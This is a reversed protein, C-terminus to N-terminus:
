YKIDSNQNKQREINDKIQLLISKVKESIGGGFLDIQTAFVIKEGFNTKNKLYIHTLYMSWGGTTLKDIENIHIKVKKFDNSIILYDDEFKVEKLPLMFFLWYLIGLIAIILSAQINKNTIYFGYTVFAIIIPTFYKMIWAVPNSLLVPRNKKM